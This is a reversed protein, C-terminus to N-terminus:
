NKIASGKLFFPGSFLPSVNGYSDEFEAEHYYEGATMGRTDGPTLTLTGLGGAADVISIGNGESDKNILNSSDVTKGMVWRIKCGTLNLPGGNDLDKLVLDYV